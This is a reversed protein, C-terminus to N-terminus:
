NCPDVSNDVRKVQGVIRNNRGCDKVVLGTYSGAVVQNEYAAPAMPIVPAFRTTDGTLEIDYVRNGSADNNALLNNNARDTAMFGWLNNHVANDHVYWATPPGATQWSESFRYLNDPVSCLVVGFIGGTITNGAMEGSPGSLSIGMLSSSVQNDTVQAGPAAFVFIGVSDILYAPDGPDLGWNTSGNVTNGRIVANDARQVVVGYQLQTMRNNLVQAGPSDEVLVACNGVTGAPPQFWIGSVTAGPAGKLHLAATMTIPFTSPFGPSTVSELVAGPEGTITVPVTVVVPGAEKHLGGKLIVTGGSGAQAIAAALGNVSGAPLEVTTGAAMAPLSMALAAALTFLLGASSVNVSTRKM